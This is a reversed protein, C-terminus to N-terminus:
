DGFGLRSVAESMTVGNWSEDQGVYVDPQKGPQAPDLRIRSRELYACTVDFEDAIRYRGCRLFEDRWKLYGSFDSAPVKKLLYRLDFFNLVIPHPLKSLSAYVEPLRQAHTAVGPFSAELVIFVAEVERVDESGHFLIRDAQHAADAVSAIVASRFADFKGWRGVPSLMKGKCQVHLKKSNPLRLLVDVDGLGWGAQVRRDIPSNSWSTKFSSAVLEEFHDGIANGYRSREAAPLELLLQIHIASLSTEVLLQPILLTRRGLSDRLFAWRSFSNVNSKFSQYDASLFPVVKGSLGPDIQDM